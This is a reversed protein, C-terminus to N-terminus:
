DDENCQTTYGNGYKAYVHNLNIQTTWWNFVKYGNRNKVYDKFLPYASEIGHRELVWKSGIPAAIKCAPVGKEAKLERWAGRKYVYLRVLEKVGYPFNDEDFTGNTVTIITDRQPKNDEWTYPIKAYPKAHTNIMCSDNEVLPHRLFEHVEFDNIRLPLIGGAAWVTIKVQTANVYEADFVVDNFDFDSSENASLDEAFVRIKKPQAEWSRGDSPILKIVRDNYYGDPTIDGQQGHSEYDFGVYCGVVGDVTIFRLVYNRYKSGQGNDQFSDHFGFYESGSYLIHQIEGSNANFDNIHEDGDNDTYDTVIGGQNWDQGRGPGCYIWDMHDSGTSEHTVGNADATSTYSVGGHGVNQVFYDTINVVETEPNKNNAFWDMVVERERDTIAAPVVYGKAEWENKNVDVTRTARSGSTATGFGWDQEPDPQGFTRIFAANYAEELSQGQAAVIAEPDYLDDNNSCSMAIFGLTLAAAGTM